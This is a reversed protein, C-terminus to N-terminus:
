REVRWWRRLADTLLIETLDNSRVNSSAVTVTGKSGNGASTSGNGASTFTAAVQSLRLDAAVRRVVEATIPKIRRSYASILSNECINNVVRPIGGSLDYILQIAETDFIFESHSNAGALELRRHIYGQFDEITLPHLRYRLTVRQKLERLELSDLKQDLEPQGVLVVQVLKQQATELNTLLRIEQLLEWDLLHAEDVIIATTAGRGGRVLLYDSLCALMEGKTRGPSSLQLDKLVYALFDMVPLRPNFIFASAVDKQTIFDLLCRLLLTKGTGAEGTLVVFGKRHLVGYSLNAFAENHGATPYFFSPDPSLEFPSHKLDYFQEYM